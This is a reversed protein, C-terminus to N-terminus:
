YYVLPSKVGHNGPSLDWCLVFATTATPADGSEFAVDPANNALTIIYQGATPTALVQQRTVLYPSQISLFSEELVGIQALVGIAQTAVQGATITTTGPPPQFGIVPFAIGQAPAPANLITTDAVAATWFTGLSGAVYAGFDYTPQTALTSKAYITMYQWFKTTMPEDIERVYAEFGTCVYTSM